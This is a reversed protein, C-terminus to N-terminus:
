FLRYRALFYTEADDTNNKHNLRFIKINGSNKACFVRIEWNGCYLVKSPLFEPGVSSLATFNAYLLPNEAIASRITHGDDRDRRSTVVGVLDDYLLLKFLIGSL